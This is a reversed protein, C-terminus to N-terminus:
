WLKEDSEKPDHSFAPTKEPTSSNNPTTKAPVTKNGSLAPVNKGGSPLNTTKTAPLSASQTVAPLNVPNNEPAAKRIASAHRQFSRVSINLRDSLQRYTEEITAGDHYLGLIEDKLLTVALKATGWPKRPPRTM